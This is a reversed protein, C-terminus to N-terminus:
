SRIRDIRLHFHSNRKPTDKEEEVEEAIVHDGDTNFIIKLRKQAKLPSKSFPSQAFIKEDV